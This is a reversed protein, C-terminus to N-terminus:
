EPIDVKNNGYTQPACFQAADIEAENLIKRLDRLVEKHEKGTLAAIELSSMTQSSGITALQM